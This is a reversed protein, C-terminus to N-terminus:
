LIQVNAILFKLVGSIANLVDVPVDPNSHADQLKLSKELILKTWKMLEDKKNDDLIEHIKKISDIMSTLVDKFSQPEFLPQKLIESIRQAFSATEQIYQALNTQVDSKNQSDLIQQKTINTFSEILRKLLLNFQHQTSLVKQDKDTGGLKADEYIVNFLGVSKDLLDSCHSIVTEQSTPDNIYRLNKTISLILNDVTKAFQCFEFSIINITTCMEYVPKVSAIVEKIYTSLFQTADAPTDSAM